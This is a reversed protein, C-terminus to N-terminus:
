RRRAQEASEAPTMESASRAVAPAVRSASPEVWPGQSPSVRPRPQPLTLPRCGVPSEWTFCDAISDLTLAAMRCTQRSKRPTEDHRLPPTIKTDLILPTSTNGPHNGHLKIYGLNNITDYLAIIIFLLFVVSITIFPTNSFSPPLIHERETTTIASTKYCLVAMENRNEGQFMISFRYNWCSTVRGILM